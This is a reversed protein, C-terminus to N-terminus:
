LPLRRIGDWDADKATEIGLINLAKLLHRGRDSNKMADLARAVAAHVKKPVRQHAAFAHLSYGDSTWLIKLQSRVDAATTEFNRIVGGGSPVIGSAVYQYVRDQSTVFVPQIVIGQKKLIARPIMSAAFANALWSLTRRKPEKYDM